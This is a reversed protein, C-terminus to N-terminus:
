GVSSRSTSASSRQRKSAVSAELEAVGAVVALVTEDREKELDALGSGAKAAARLARYSVVIHVEGGTAEVFRKLTSLLMDGRRELRSVESQDM